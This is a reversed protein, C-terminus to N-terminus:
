FPSTVNAEPIYLLVTDDEELGDTIEIYEDGEFGLEIDQQTLIDPSTPTINATTTATPLYVFPKDNDDYQIAAREISLANDQEAVVVEIEVTLGIFQLAEDPIDTPRIRVTFGSETSTASATGGGLANTKVPEISEVTGHYVTDGDGYSPITINAIQDSKIDFIESESAVFEILNTRYGIEVVPTTPIIDDDVFTTVALVRGDFPATLEEDQSRAFNDGEIEVLVEDKDVLDGTKFNVATTRGSIEFALQETQEPVVKGTTSITRDLDRRQVTITEQPTQNAEDLSRKINTGVTVAIGGLVLVILIFWFWWRTYFRKRPPQPLATTM